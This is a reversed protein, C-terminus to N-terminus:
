MPWCHRDWIHRARAIVRHTRQPWWCGPGPQMELDVTLLYNCAHSGHGAVEEVFFDADFRKGILRGYLDPFAAIVTEVEGDRVKHHLEELSLM